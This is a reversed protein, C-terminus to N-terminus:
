PWMVAFSFFLLFIWMLRPVVIEQSCKLNAINNM